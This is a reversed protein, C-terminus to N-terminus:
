AAALAARRLREATGLYHRGPDLMSARDVTFDITMARRGYFIQHAIQRSDVIWVDGPEFVCIHRPNDDWCANAQTEGLGRYRLANWWAAPSLREHDQRTMRNGVRALIEDVTYSTQWIRAQNDLNIFMRAHHTAIEGAYSDIHMSLGVLRNLRLVGLEQRYRYPAFLAEYVPLIQRYIDRIHPEIRARLEDEIAGAVSPPRGAIRLKKFGPRDDTPLAAWFAHDIELKIGPFTIIKGADYERVISAAGELTADSDVFYDTLAPNRKIIAM